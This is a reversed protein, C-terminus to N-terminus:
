AANWAPRHPDEEVRMDKESPVAILPQDGIRQSFRDGFGGAFDIDAGDGYPFDADFPRDPLRAECLAHDLRDEGVPKFKEWDAALGRLMSRLRGGMMSVWEIPQEHGLGLELAHEEAGM